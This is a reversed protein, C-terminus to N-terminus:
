LEQVLISVTDGDKGDLEVGTVRVQDLTIRKAIARSFGASSLSDLTRQLRKRILNNVREETASPM